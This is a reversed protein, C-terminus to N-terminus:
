CSTKNSSVAGAAPASATGTGPSSSLWAARTGSSAAGAVPVGKPRVSPILLRGPRLDVQCYKTTCYGFDGEKDFSRPLKTKPPRRGPWALVARRQETRRHQSLAQPALDDKGHLRSACRTFNRARPEGDDRPALRHHRHHHATTPRGHHVSTSFPPCMLDSALDKRTYPLYFIGPFM